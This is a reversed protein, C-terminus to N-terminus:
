GLTLDEPDHNRASQAMARLERRAQEAGARIGAKRGALYGALFVAAAALLLMLAAM